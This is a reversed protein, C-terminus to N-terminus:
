ATAGLIASSIALFTAYYYPIAILFSRMISSITLVESFLIVTNFKISQKLSTM